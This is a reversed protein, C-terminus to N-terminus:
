GGPALLCFRGRWRFCRFGEFKGDVVYLDCVPVRLNVVPQGILYVGYVVEIEVYRENGIDASSHLYEGLGAERRFDILCGYGHGALGLRKGIRQLAREADIELSDIKGIIKGINRYFGADSTVDPVRSTAASTVKVLYLSLSGFDCTVPSTIM